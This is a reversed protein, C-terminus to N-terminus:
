FSAILQNPHHNSVFLFKGGIHAIRVPAIRHPMQKLFKIFHITM